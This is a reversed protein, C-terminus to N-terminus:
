LVHLQELRELTAHQVYGKTLGIVVVNVCLTAVVIIASGRRMTSLTPRLRSRESSGKSRCVGIGWWAVLMLIVSTAIYVSMITTALSLARRMLIDTYAVQDQREARVTEDEFALIFHTIPQKLKIFLLLNDKQTLYPTLLGWDIAHTYAQYDRQWAADTRASLAQFAIAQRECSYAKDTSKCQNVDFAEAKKAINLMSASMTDDLGVSKLYVNFAISFFAYSILIVTAAMVIARLSLQLASQKM